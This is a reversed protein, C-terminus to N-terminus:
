RSLTGSSIGFAVKFFKQLPIRLGIRDEIRKMYKLPLVGRTGGGDICLVGGVGATPPHIKVVVEKPMEVGCLFCRHVRFIWPDDVCCEGFVLVCNECVIHGCPLGYQPRRRLCVLCTASSQISRWRDEFIRLNVRHIELSPTGESHISQEFFECLRSEVNSIFGSRLIVDRSGEFAMVRSESVQYFVDRYLTRFVDKPDFV